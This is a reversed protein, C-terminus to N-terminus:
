SGSVILDVINFNNCGNMDTGGAVLLKIALAFHLSMYRFGMRVFVPDFVVVAWVAGPGRDKRPAQPRVNSLRVSVFVFTAVVFFTSRLFMCGIMAVAIRLLAAAAAEQM